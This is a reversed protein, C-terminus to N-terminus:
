RDKEDARRFVPGKGGPGGAFHSQGRDNGYRGYYKSYLCLWFDARRRLFLLGAAVLNRDPRNHYGYRKAPSAGSKNTIVCVDCRQNKLRKIMECTNEDTAADTALVFVPIFDRLMAIPGHTFNAVSYARSRVFSTEQTKIGFELAIPYNLGRALIFCENMFRYRHAMRSLEQTRDLMAAAIRPLRKVLDLLRPEGSLQAALQTLLALQCLFTKTAALSKELGACCNLHFKARQSLLSGETNTIAVTLSGDRNGRDILSCVDQAAGSQSIGVVVANSLKLKGGYKTLVSPAAIMVPLGVYTEFVYKAFKAANCSTGRAALVLYSPNKSRIEEALFKVMVQNQEICERLAVPEEQIEQFMISNNM